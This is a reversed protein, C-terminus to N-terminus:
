RNPGQNRFLYLGDKGPAIVDLWGNGDLDATWFYIGAGSAEGAPGYDITVREFRGGDIKFYYIGLPDAAGPDNGNHARYRKGTILDLQGDNDIDALQLDHYQSRDPDIDHRIWQRQGDATHTQRWWALGYDHANGVILDALGDGDVDHVLIPVSALRFLDYEAHWTWEDEWPNAPAELWGAQLLIDARGNGNVDGFGLGHGSAESRLTRSIFEGTGRGQADRQLKFIQLPAGPTNPIIEPFGDGDIDYFCAREVNGVKAIEHVTWPGTGGQPNELWILRQGFWGGTVIDTFGDGNVDMPISSFDDYYENIPELDYIKHEKIFDPGEFWVGGTVIDLIGDNNVDVASAAEYTVQGIRAKTFTVPATATAPQETLLGLWLVLTFTTLM